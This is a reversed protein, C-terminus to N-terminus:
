LFVDLVIGPLAPNDAHGTELDEAARTRIREFASILIETDVAKQYTLGGRAQQRKLHALIQDIRKLETM